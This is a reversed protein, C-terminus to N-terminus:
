IGYTMEAFQLVNCIKHWQCHMRNIEMRDFRVNSINNTACISCLKWVGHTRLNISWFPSWYMNCLSIWEGSSELPKLLRWFNLEWAVNYFQRCRLIEKWLLKGKLFMIRKFPPWVTYYRKSCKEVQTNICWGPVSTSTWVMGCRTPPVWYTLYCRQPSPDPGSVRFIIWHFMRLFGELKIVPYLWLWLTLWPTMSIYITM